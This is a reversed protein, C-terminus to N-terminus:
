PRRQFLANAFDLRGQADYSLDFLGRFRFGFQDLRRFIDLYYSHQLQEPDIKRAMGQQLAGIALSKTDSM